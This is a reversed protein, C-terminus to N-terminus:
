REMASSSSHPFRSSPPIATSSGLLVSDRIPRTHNETLIVNSIVNSKRIIWMLSNIAFTLPCRSVELDRNCSLSDNSSLHPSRTIINANCTISRLTDFKLPPPHSPQCTQIQYYACSRQHSSTTSRQRPLSTLEYDSFFSFSFISQIILRYQILTVTSFTLDDGEHSVKSPFM